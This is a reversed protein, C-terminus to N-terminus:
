RLDARRAELPAVGSARNHDLDGLDVLEPRPEAVADLLEFATLPRPGEQIPQLAPLPQDLEAVDSFHRATVLM